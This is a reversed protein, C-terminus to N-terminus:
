SKEVAPSWTYISKIFYKRFGHLNKCPYILDDQSFNVNIIKILHGSPSTKKWACILIICLGNKQYKPKSNKRNSLPSSDQFIIIMDYM